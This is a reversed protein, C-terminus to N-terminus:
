YNGVTAGFSRCGRTPDPISVMAGATPAATGGAWFGVESFCSKGWEPGGAFLDDFGDGNYDGVYGLGQGLRSSGRLTLTIPATLGTSSGRYIWLTTGTEAVIVDDFGDRNMDGVAGLVVGFGEPSVTIPTDSSTALGSAGGRYVRIQYPVSERAVLAVLDNYGDGNVDAAVVRAGDVFREGEPPINITRVPTFPGAGALSSGRYVYFQSGSTGGGGVVVVEPSPDNDTQGLSVVDLGFRVAETPATITTPSTSLGTAGGRALFVTGECVEFNCASVLLDNFGDGDLDAAPRTVSGFVRTSTPSLTTGATAFGSGVSPHVIVRNDFYSGAVLDGLGDGNFDGVGTIEGFSSEVPGELTQTPATTSTPSAGGQFYMVSWGGSAGVVLDAVGDGNVDPLLRAVGVVSAARNPLTFAWTRTSAATGEATGVRGFARWFYRGAALTATPTASAGTATFRGVSMTCARDRCVEVVVGDTGTALTVDFRVAASQMVSGSPPFRLTPAAIAVCAGSVLAFGANCRPACAGAVCSTTGNTPAACPRNCGGCHAVSTTTDTECGNAAVGDCNGRGTNCAGLGCVGATCVATGGAVACANTCSGCRTVTTQLDFCADGCLTQGMPCLVTCAGMVCSRGAPCANGCAGCNANDSQRDVCSGSCNTTGAACNLVCAGMTCVQGAPCANGCAGCHAGSTQTDVCSGTCETLGSECTVRCAGSSCVQGSACAAGCAGCHSSSSRTDVCQGACATQGAPCVLACGGAVCSLGTVCSTGCAGCHSANTQTDVCAGDCLTQGATCSSACASSRCLQGAACAMGCGGCHAASATTDVECGDRPDSNCDARGAACVLRCANSVCTFAPNVVRCDYDTQCEAVCRSTRCVLGAPCDSTRTCEAMAQQVQCVRQGAFQGEVCSQGAPCERDSTCSARCYNSRCVQGDSCDSDYLCQGEPINSGLCGTLALGAALALGFLSTFRPM